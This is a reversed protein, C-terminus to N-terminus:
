VHVRLLQKTIDGKIIQTIIWQNEFNNLVILQKFTNFYYMNQMDLESPIESPIQLRLLKYNDNREIYSLSRHSNLVYNCRYLKYIDYLKLYTKSCDNKVETIAKIHIECINNLSMYPYVTYTAINMYNGQQFQNTLCHRKSVIIGVKIKKKSNQLVTKLIYACANTFSSYNTINLKPVIQYKNYSLRLNETNKIGLNTLNKISLNMLDGDYTQHHYNYEVINNNYNLIIYKLHVNGCIFGLIYNSIKKPTIFILYYIFLTFILYKKQNM